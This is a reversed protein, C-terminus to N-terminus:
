RGLRVLGTIVGWVLTRFGMAGISELAVAGGTSRWGVLGLLVLAHLGVIGWTARVAWARAQWLGIGVALSVAGMAANYAVLPVTVAYGPQSAGLLVSGGAGMSMVGVGIGLSAALRWISKAKM